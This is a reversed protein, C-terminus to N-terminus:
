IAGTERKIEHLFRKEFVEKAETGILTEVRRSADDFISITVSKVPFRKTTTRRYVGPKGCKKLTAIFAHPYMVGGAIVGTPTQKVNTLDKVYVSKFNCSLIAQPNRKSAKQMSIRDRILKLKLRQEASIDKALRGKMWEATRNLAFISAQQVQYPMSNLDTVIKEIQKNVQIQSM